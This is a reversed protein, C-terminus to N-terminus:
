CPTFNCMRKVQQPPPHPQNCPPRFFHTYDKSANQRKTTVWSEREEGRRSIRMQTETLLEREKMWWGWWSKARGKSSFMQKSYLALSRTTSSKFNILANSFAQTLPPRSLGGGGVWRKVRSSAERHEVLVM